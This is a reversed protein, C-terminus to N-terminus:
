CHQIFDVQFAVSSRLTFQNIIQALREFNSFVLYSNISVLSKYHSLETSNTSQGPLKSKIATKKAHRKLTWLGQGQRFVLDENCKVCRVSRRFNDSSLVDERFGKESLQSLFHEFTPAGRTLTAITLITAGTLCFGWFLNM